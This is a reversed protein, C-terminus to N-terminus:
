GLAEHEVSDKLQRLSRDFYKMKRAKVHHLLVPTTGALQYVATTTLKRTWPVMIGCVSTKLLKYEKEKSQEIDM